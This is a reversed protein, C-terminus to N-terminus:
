WSAGPQSTVVNDMDMPNDGQRAPSTASTAVTSTVPVIVRMRPLAKRPKSGSPKAVKSPQGAPESASDRTRKTSRASPAVPVAPSASPVVPAAPPAPPASSSAPPASPAVPEHRRKTRPEPPPPPSNQEEDAEEEEASEEETEGSDSVYEVSEVSGEQSDEEEEAPNGNSVPSFWNTWAENLPPNDARFAKVRRAGRPNECAGTINLVWSAVTEGTVCEVNTRTSDEPGTYHWMAHYRAQLPQIRRGLFVELLDIGTVGRRVVDVLADVLPQIYIKEAKTLALQKPPAPRDLSFPPLGTTANPCAVDQCYFWTSQWNRVSESLQLAPYSSKSKKQFGLGGCLQLLHTKDDSQNLRKITQSRASFIHKFLGWHPPCGIFCECLVVFASLYAIANPPFHHLQAGFDNM